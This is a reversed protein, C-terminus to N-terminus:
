KLLPFRMDRDQTLAEALVVCTALIQLQWQGDRSHLPGALSYLQQWSVCANRGPASSVVRGLVAPNHIAIRGHISPYVFGLLEGLVADDHYQDRDTPALHDIDLGNIQGVLTKTFNSLYEYENRKGM